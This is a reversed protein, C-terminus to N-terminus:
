PPTLNFQLRNVSSIGINILRSDALATTTLLYEIGYRDRQMRFYLQGGRTYSFIIDSAQQQTPRKDDLTCRGFASGAPTTSTRFGAITSDFWYYSLVGDDTTYCAFVRMNQDFTFSMDVVNGIVNLINTGSPDSPSTVIFAHGDCVCQWTQVQLGQSGDNIAIGGEEWDVLFDTDARMNRPALLTGLEATSSLVNQPMM